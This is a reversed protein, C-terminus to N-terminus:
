NYEDDIKISMIKWIQGVSVEETVKKDMQCIEDNKYCKRAKKCLLINWTHQTKKNTQKNNNKSEKEWGV